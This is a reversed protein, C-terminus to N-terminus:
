AGSGAPVNDGPESRQPQVPMSTPALPTNEAIRHASENIKFLVIMIECFIRVYIAGFILIALGKFFGGFYPMFMMYIGGILVSLLMLWYIFTIIKPTLMSNFFFVSKWFNGNM